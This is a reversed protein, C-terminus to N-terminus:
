FGEGRLLKQKVEMYYLFSDYSVDPPVTHDVTPIFGGGEVLPLLRRLEADIATRGKALERKDIAGSLTLERGFERRIRFPDMDAAAELPWTGNIGAEILLPLLVEINGDSDLHIIEVGKSRLWGNVRQYRPLFFERFTAPSFLPGTKYAFDEFWNFYDVEVESLARELLAILFEVIHDMMEHVLAPQDHFALSLNETGMWRRCHSYLGMAGNPVACLPITRTRHQRVLDDWNGPYRAPDSPDYRARVAPWDDPGEVSFSIFQDMSPRTGRVTGETMAKRLAGDADRFLVHRDTEELVEHEFAPIAGFSLPLFDRREIGLPECGYFHAHQAVEEPMGEGLWREIAQGWFGLEFNPLRDVPEFNMCNVFRERTTM